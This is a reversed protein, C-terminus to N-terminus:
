PTKTGPGIQADLFKEVRTYFDYRNEPKYLGHAEEDYRVWELNTKGSDLLASRLKEAHEIPVRQDVGGHVLLLPQKLEAAHRIPSTQAFQAADKVRDGVMRPMGYDKWDNGFDSWDISYMLDIDTVAAEAIGCRFTDPDKILAMLTAYGGYSGGMVCVRKPDSWGSAVAWRTADVLDDDMKMGWQRFGAEMLVSGYGTSGRFEPEIVAYGRSALFQPEASFQWQRGRLWPGGHVLVVTPFPGKGAPKTIWAPIELGDRAKFRAFDTDAMAAAQIGPRSAGIRALAKTETDYIFFTTPQRDSASTVVVKTSCGCEAPELTNVLGPLKADIEAQVRALAPDFWATGGADGVYHVGALSHRALNSVLSGQFDFGEVSVLPKSSVKGSNLDLKFLASTQAASGTPATVYVAGDAGVDVLSIAGTSAGYRAFEAVKRWGDGAPVLVQATAGSATIVALPRGHEDLAWDSALDPMTGAIVRKIASSRTDLRLPYTGIVTDDTGFTSKGVMVDDSGDRLTRMFFHDPRLIRSKILAAGEYLNRSSYSSAILTRLNAGSRDVAFLGSNQTRWATENETGASFVLRDDNVWEVRWIDSNSFTAAFSTKSPDATDIVLISRRSGDVSVLAAIHKGSPSLVASSMAVPGFFAEVSPPAGAAHAGQAGLALQGALMLGALAKRLPSM